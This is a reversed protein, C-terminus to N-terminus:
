PKSRHIFEDSLETMHLEDRVTELSKLCDALNNYGEGSWAMVRWEGFAYKKFRWHYQTRRLVHKTRVVEIIRNM